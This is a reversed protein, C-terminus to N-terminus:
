GAAEYRPAVEWQRAERPAAATRRVPSSLDDISRRVHTASLDLADCVNVFSFPWDRDDAALWESAEAFLRRARPREANAYKLITMVADMLVARRLLREGEYAHRTRELPGPASVGAAGIRGLFRRRRRRKKQGRTQRNDVSEHMRPTAADMGRCERGGIRPEARRRAAGYAPRTFRAERPGNAHM